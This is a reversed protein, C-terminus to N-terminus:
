EDEKIPRLDSRGRDWLHAESYLEQPVSADTPESETDTGKQAIPDVGGKPAAGIIMEMQNESIPVGYGFTGATTLLEDQCQTSTQKLLGILNPQEQLFQALRVLNEHRTESNKLSEGYKM